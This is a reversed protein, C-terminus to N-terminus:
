GGILRLAYSAEVYQSLLLVGVGPLQRRITEAAALGEDRYTPPMRIDLIAVDPLKSAALALVAEAVGAEGVVDVGAETFLRVLGQRFLVTDDAIM